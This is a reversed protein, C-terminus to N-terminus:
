TGSDPQQPRPDDIKEAEIRLPGGFDSEDSTIHTAKLEGKPKGGADAASAGPNAGEDSEPFLKRRDEEVDGGSFAGETRIDTGGGPVGAGAGGGSSSDGAGPGGGIQGPYTDPPTNEPTDRTLDIDRDAAGREFNSPPSQDRPTDRGHPNTGAFLDDRGGAGGDGGPAAAQRGGTNQPVNANVANQPSTNADETAAHVESKQADQQAM